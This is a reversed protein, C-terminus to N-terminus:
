VRVPGIAIHVDSPLVVMRHVPRQEVQLVEAEVPKGECGPLDQLSVLAGGWAGLREAEPGVALDRLDGIPRGVIGVAESIDLVSVVQLVDVESSAGPLDDVVEVVSILGEGM